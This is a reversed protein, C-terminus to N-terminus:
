DEYDIDIKFDPNYSFKREIFLAHYCEIARKAKSVDQRLTMATPKERSYENLVRCRFNDSLDKLWLCFVGDNERKELYLAVVGPENAM